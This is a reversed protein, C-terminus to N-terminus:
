RGAETALARVDDVVITETEPAFRQWASRAGRLEGDGWGYRTALKKWREESHYKRYFHGPFDRELQMTASQALLGSIVRRRQEDDLFHPYANLRFGNQNAYIPHGNLELHDGPHLLQRRLGDREDLFQDHLKLWHEDGTGKYIAYLTPILISVHNNRFGKWSFGVHSQTM